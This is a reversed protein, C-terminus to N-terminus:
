VCKILKKFDLGTAFNEILYKDGYIDKAYDLENQNNVWITRSLISKLGDEGFLEGSNVDFAMAQVSFPVGSLYNIIEPALGRQKISHINSLPIVDSFIGNKDIKISGHQNCNVNWSNRVFVSEYDNKLGDVVFDWDKIVVNADYFINILTKYIGSGVLWIKGSACKRVIDLAQLYAYNALLEIHLLQGAEKLNM